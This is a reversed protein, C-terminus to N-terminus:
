EQEKQSCSKKFVYKYGISIMGNFFDNSNVYKNLDNDINYYAFELGVTILSRENLAFDKNLKLGFVYGLNRISYYGFEEKINYLTSIVGIKPEISFEKKLWLTYGLGVTYSDYTYDSSTNCWKSEGFIFLDDVYFTVVTSTFFNDALQFSGPTEMYNYALEVKAAYTRNCFIKNLLMPYSKVQAISTITLFTFLILLTKKMNEPTLM